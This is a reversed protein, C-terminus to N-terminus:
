WWEVVFLLHRRMMWFVREGLVVVKGLSYDKVANKVSVIPRMLSRQASGAQSPARERRAPPADADM